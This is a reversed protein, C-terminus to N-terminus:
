ETQKIGADAAAPGSPPAKLERKGIERAPNGAVITWPPVDKMVVARAGVVAGDGITVGPGIFAGAAIWVYDGIVVKRRVLPYTPDTHDHTGGCVYVDQSLISQQGISLGGLNYLHVRRGINAGRVIHLDWPRAIHVSRALYVHWDVDGGLLRLLFARAPRFRRWCVQWITSWILAWLPRLLYERAPYPFRECEDLDIGPPKEQTPM